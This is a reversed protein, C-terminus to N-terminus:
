HRTHHAAPKKKKTPKKPGYRKRAQKECTQRKHKNKDKHCAKLAKALLQARTLTTKSGLVGKCGTPTIQTSQRLVAGDQATIETPMALPAKCLNYRETGPANPSFISEPGAPLVTEFTTFPADPASEFRSYTIGNKIDTKGDLVITVGEGQLVFEVDPFEAGGHSVLYAPGTLPSKLVPTHITASGIASGPPCAAPNANFTAELCALKLTSDRTSLAKPLTLFVKAINSQVVGGPGVGGSQVKVDFNTGDNKSGL